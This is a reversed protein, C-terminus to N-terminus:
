FALEGIHFYLTGQRTGEIESHRSEPGLQHIGRFKTGIAPIAHLFSIDGTPMISRASMPDPGFHPSYIRAFLNPTDTLVTLKGERTTLGLRYLNAFYGKFEPVAWSQGPVPDNYLNAFSGMQTGHMRNKWVRYPGAGIWDKALVKEEPYDFSIGAFEYSGFLEVQYDLKLWGSPYATWRFVSRNQQVSIVYNNGERRHSIKLHEPTDSPIRIQHISTWENETNGYGTFRLYRATVDGVAYTEFPDLSRRSMGSFIKHWTSQDDSSELTFRFQRRDGNQWYVIVESFSRREGLDLKIWAGEGQASWRSDLNNDIVHAARHPQQESRAEVSLIPAYDTTTRSPVFRPGNGISFPQGGRLANILHGTELNFRLTHPGTSLTLITDEELALIRGPTERIKTQRYEEPTRIFQSWTFLEAGSPDFATVYLLDRERWDQPVDILLSGDSGPAVDPGRVSGTQRVVYGTPTERTDAFDAWKWDFRCQNLNTFAYENKVPLRGDFSSDLKPLTLQVPSWLEKITYFSGGKERYPGVIGDPAHNGDSDIRGNRDTRVVGEDILAWIFGGAGIPSDKIATWYDYLAAGAGGDYLAHMFETPMYINPGKLRRLHDAYPPYHATDIGNFLSPSEWSPTPHIVVRNQPDHRGYEKVLEFNHGGENGNAWFLISPHNVDRRVMQEVLRKGVTTDYADHWGALENIVYLGLEDAAQLFHKDPPYHAMRVANMNMEKILRVDDYSIQRNVTRGTDPWFCHRNVGKFLLKEGNLYIGDGKRVEVTRFGFRERVQHLTDHGRRLRVTAYYLAPAEASWPNINPARTRMVVTGRDDRIPQTIGEAVLNGQQDHLELAISDASHAPGLHVNMTFEGDAQADIATWDIHETPLAELFVPRYIGGFIWYDGFREAREVSRNTSVKSVTVELLNPNEFDLLDTIDYHFQYFGGQHEPGAAQGNIRVETDTMSGEFVIRIRRDRWGQPITFPHRYKGKEDSRPRDHGYNYSGFGQLEWNSPVPITTWYGSQRGDTCFFDWDVTDDSGTGSLYVIQSVTPDSALNPEAAVTPTSCGLGILAAGLAPSSLPKLFHKM